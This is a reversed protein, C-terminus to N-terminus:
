WTMEARMSRGVERWYAPDRPEHHWKKLPEQPKNAWEKRQAQKEKFKQCAGKRIPREPQHSASPAALFPIYNPDSKLKPWPNGMPPGTPKPKQWNRLSAIHRETFLPETAPLLTRQRRRHKRLIVMATIAAAIVVAAVPVVILVLQKGDSSLM